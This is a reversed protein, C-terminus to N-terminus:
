DDIDEVMALSEILGKNGSGQSSELLLSNEKKANASTIPRQQKRM